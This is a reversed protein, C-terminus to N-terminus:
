WLTSRRCSPTTMQAGPGTRRSSALFRRPTQNFHQNGPFRRVPGVAAVPVSAPIESRIRRVSPRCPERLDGGYSRVLERLRLRRGTAGRRRRLGPVVGTGCGRRQFPPRAARCGSHRHAPATGERLAHLFVYNRLVHRQVSQLFAVGSSELRKFLNTRCFGMLRKGARSLDQIHRAEASTPPADPADSVYNGLGYRPLHLANITAVVSPSYLRAYQDTADAEDITFKITRPVRSPFYSREGDEYTLFKRGSDPDTQAYNDQIFSRTRRVLYNRDPLTSKISPRPQPARLPWPAPPTVLSEPASPVGNQHDHPCMDDAEHPSLHM